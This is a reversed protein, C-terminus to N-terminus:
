WLPMSRSSMHLMMTAPDVCSGALQRVGKLHVLPGCPVGGVLDQLEHRATLHAHSIYRFITGISLECVAENRLQLTMASHKLM